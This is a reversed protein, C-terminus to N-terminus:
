EAFKGAFLSQLQAYNPIRSRDERELMFHDFVCCNLTGDAINGGAVPYGSIGGADLSQVVGAIGGSPVSVFIFDYKKQSCPNVQYVDTKATGKSDIRGDLLEVRLQRIDAKPSGPRLYHEVTHGAKQFLYGYTTGIVGLGIILINMAFNILSAFKRMERSMGRM